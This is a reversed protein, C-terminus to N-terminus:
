QSLGEKQSLRRFWLYFSIGLCLIITYEFLSYLANWNHFKTLGAIRHIQEIGSMLTFWWILIVMKQMYHLKTQFLAYLLWVFLCPIIIMRNLELIWFVTVTEIFQIRKMNLSVVSFALHSISAIFFCNITIEYLNLRRTAVVLSTLIGFSIILTLSLITIM